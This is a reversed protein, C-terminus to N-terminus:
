ESYLTSHAIETYVTSHNKSYFHFCYLIAMILFLYQHLVWKRRLNRLHFKQINRIKGGGM